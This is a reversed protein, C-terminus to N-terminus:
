NRDSENAGLRWLEGYKVLGGFITRGGKRPRSYMVRAVLTETIKDQIKLVPYNHPYYSMDMPSKDLLCVKRHAASRYVVSSLLSVSAIFIKKM